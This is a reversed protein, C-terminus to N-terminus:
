SRETGQYGLTPRSLPLLTATQLCVHGPRPFISIAGLLSMFPLCCSAAELRFVPLITLPVRDGAFFLGQVGQEKM